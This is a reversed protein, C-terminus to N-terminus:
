NIFLQISHIHTKLEDSISKLAEIPVDRSKIVGIPGIDKEYASGNSFFSISRIM